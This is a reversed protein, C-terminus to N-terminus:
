MKSHSGREIERSHVIMGEPRVNYCPRLLLDPLDPPQWALLKVFL